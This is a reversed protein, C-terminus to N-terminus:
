ELLEILNKIDKNRPFEQSMIHIISQPYNNIKGQSAANIAHVWQDYVTGNSILDSAKGGARIWISKLRDSFIEACLETIIEDIENSSITTNKTPFSRAEYFRLKIRNAKSLLPKIHPIVEKLRRNGSKYSCYMDKAIDKWRNQSIITGILNSENEWNGHSLLYKAIDENITNWQILQIIANPSLSDKKQALQIIRKSILPEPQNINKVALLTLLKEAISNLIIEKAPNDLYSWVFPRNKYNLFVTSIEDDIYITQILKKFDGELDNNSIIKNLIYTIYYEKGEKTPLTKNDRNLCSLWVKIWYSNELDIKNLIQRESLVRDTIYKLINIDKHEIITYIIESNPYNDVLTQLSQPENFVLQNKLSLSADYFYGVALAHANFFNNNICFDLFNKTINTKSFCKKEKCIKTEFLKKEVLLNEINKSIKSNSLLLLCKEVSICFNNISYSLGDLIMQSWWKYSKEKDTTNLLIEFKELDLNLNIHSSMWSHLNINYESPLPINALTFLQDIDMDDINDIIFSITENVLEIILPNKDKSTALSSRLLKIANTINSNDKYELYNSIIKEVIRLDKLYNYDCILEKFFIFNDSEKDILCESIYKITQKNPNKIKEFRDTWSLEYNGLVCYLTPNLLSTTDQEKFVCHLSLNKRSKPWLAKWLFSMINPWQEFNNTLCASNSNILKNLIKLSEDHSLSVETINRDMLQNLVSDIEDQEFVQTIPWIAVKSKVSGSRTQNLDPKTYWIAFYNDIPACNLTYDWNSPQSPPIDTLSVLEIPYDFDTDSILKHGRSTYGFELYKPWAMKDM